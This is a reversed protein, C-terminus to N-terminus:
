RGSRPRLLAERLLLEVRRVDPIALFGRRAIQADRGRLRRPGDFILDGSGDGRQNRVMRTLTVPPYSRISVGPILLPQLVIARRDTIVYTTGLGRWLSWVPLAMMGVGILLSPFAVIAAGGRSEVLCIWSILAVVAGVAAAPLALVFLWGLRPKGEWIVREGALLEDRVAGSRPYTKTGSFEDDVWAANGM